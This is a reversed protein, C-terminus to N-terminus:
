WANRGTGGNYREVEGDDVAHHVTPIPTPLVPVDDASQVSPLVSPTSGVDGGRWPNPVPEKWPTIEGGNHWTTGIEHQNGANSGGNGGGQGPSVTRVMTPEPENPVVEATCAVLPCALLMAFLSSVATMKVPKM